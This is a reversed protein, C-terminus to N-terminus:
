ARRSLVVALFSRLIRWYGPCHAAHAAELRELELFRQAREAISAAALRPRIQRCRDRRKQRVPHSDALIEDCLHLLATARARPCLERVRHWGRSRLLLDFDATSRLADRCLTGLPALPDRCRLAVDVVVRAELREDSSRLVQLLAPLSRPDAAAVADILAAVADFDVVTWHTPESARTKPDSM